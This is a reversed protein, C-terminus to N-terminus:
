TTEVSTMKMTNEVRSIPELIDRHVFISNSLLTRPRSSKRKENNGKEKKNGQVAHKGKKQNLLLHHYMGPFALWLAPKRDGM